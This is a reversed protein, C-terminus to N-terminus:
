CIKVSITQCGSINRIHIKIKSTTVCQHNKIIGRCKNAPMGKYTVSGWGESKKTDSHVQINM